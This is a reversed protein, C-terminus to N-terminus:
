PQELPAPINLERLFQPFFTLTQEWLSTTQM